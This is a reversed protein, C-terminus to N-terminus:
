PCVGYRSCIWSSAAGLIFALVTKLHKKWDRM